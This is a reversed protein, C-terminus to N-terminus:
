LNDIEQQTVIGKSVLLESLKNLKEEVIERKSIEVQLAAVLGSTFGYQDLGYVSTGNDRDHREFMSFFMDQSLSEEAEQAMVGIQYDNKFKRDETAHLANYNYLNVNKFYDYYSSLTNLVQGQAITGNFTQGDKLVPIIDEKQTRDSNITTTNAYLTRFKRDPHGLYYTSSVGSIPNYIGDADAFGYILYFDKVNINASNPIFEANLLKTNATSPAFTNSSQNYGITDSNLIGNVTTSGDVYLRSTGPDITGIGINGESTIRMREISVTDDDQNLPATGFTLYGGKDISSHNQAAFAAIYASAELVSSPANGDISDFGIGGLIENTATTIDDRVILIGDGFDNGPINIQLTNLPNENSELNVGIRALSNGLRIYTSSTASSGTGINITKLNTSVAGTSINTTSSGSGDYGLNLTTAAGFANVTTATADFISATTTTTTIDASTAGNVALDGSLTTNGTVGLTGGLSTAGTGSLTLTGTFTPSEIPAKLAISNTVTTAFNEDNGLAAALEDLTDLAGPASNVLNSIASGVFETTAIQTTNTGATATPALPIGTFTPSSFMTAKSENTVNGLGVMTSTIGSVTGTFTPDTFMTSKSENTVNGLGVMTSTIGSVTGTFTPSSFMTAKSENTVNGLGVMTSTIGSVTGTFTPSSFMTTKSENTVNGLGVMTSTIGSVTGTFTPSNAFVLAGTGTTQDAASLVGRLQEATTAAFDSLKNELLAMTGSQNPFTITSDDSTVPAVLISSGTSSSELTLKDTVLSESIIVNGGEIAPLSAWGTSDEEGVTITLDTVAGYIIETRSKISNFTLDENGIELYFSNGIEFKFQPDPAGSSVSINRLSYNGEGNIEITLRYTHTTALENVVILLYIRAAFDNNSFSLIKVQTVDALTSFESEITKYVIKRLNGLDAM